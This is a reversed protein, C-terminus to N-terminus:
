KSFSFKGLRNGTYIKSNIQKISNINKIYWEITKVIGQKFNTKHKWGINRLKESNVKYSFDHAPRDTVYEILQEYNFNNKKSFYKTITEVVENNSILNQCSINYKQGIRGKNMILHLANVTDEVYLWDRQNKGNGYIGIKEKMFCKMITLPILKEPFQFPGYNNSPNVVVVPINFTKNYALCLLEASAKTSSYPSSPNLISIEDCFKKTSSGYVEDTSIHILKKLRNNNNKKIAELLNFTGIINTSISLNPKDISNDVHSEAALNFIYDPNFSKICREINKYISLDLIHLKYNKNKIKNLLLTKKSKYLSLNDINLVKKNKKLFFNILNSGIFGCGGTILIKM